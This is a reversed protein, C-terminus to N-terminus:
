NHSRSLGGDQLPAASKLGNLLFSMASEPLLNGNLFSTHWLILTIWSDVAWAWDAVWRSIHMPWWNLKWNWWKRVDFKWNKWQLRLSHWCLKTHSAGLLLKCNTKQVPLTLWHSAFTKLTKSSSGTQRKYTRSSLNLTSTTPLVFFFTWICFKFNGLNCFTSTNLCLFYISM